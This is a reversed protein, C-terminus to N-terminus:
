CSSPPWGLSDRICMEVVGFDGPGVTPVRGDARTQAKGVVAQGEAGVVGGAQADRELLRDALHDPELVVRRQPDADGVGFAQCGGDASSLSRCSRGLM